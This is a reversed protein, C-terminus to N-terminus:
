GSGEVYVDKAYLMDKIADPSSEMKQSACVVHNVQGQRMAQSRRRIRGEDHQDGSHQIARTSSYWVIGQRM